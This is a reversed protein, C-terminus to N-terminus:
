SQTNQISVKIWIKTSGVVHTVTEHRMSIIDNPILHFPFICLNSAQPASEFRIPVKVEEANEDM